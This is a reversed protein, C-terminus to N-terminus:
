QPLYFNLSSLFLILFKTQPHPTTCCARKSCLYHGLLWCTLPCDQLSAWLFVLFPQHLRLSLLSFDWTMLCYLFSSLYGHFPSSRSPLFSYSLVLFWIVFSFVLHYFFLFLSFMASISAHKLLGNKKKGRSMGVRQFEIM